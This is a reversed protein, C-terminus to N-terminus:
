VGDDDSPKEAPADADHKKPNLDKKLKDVARSVAKPLTDRRESLKPKKPKDPKTPAADSTDDQEDHQPEAQEDPVAQLKPKDAPEEDRDASTSPATSFGNRFNEVGEDIAEPLAEIAEAIRDHPTFLSFRTPKDANQYDRDTYGMDIVVRLTPEIAGLVPETLATTQLAASFDRVPQLLPLHEARILVYTDTGGEPTTVVLVAQDDDDLDVNDPGHDGHVYKMGAVANAISLPNAYAPFDAILDYELSVFTEDYPSPVAAGTSVFGPFAMGPFRSYIGGNPVFPSALFLFKLDAPAPAGPDSLLTRKYKEAVLSGQSYGVILVTRDGDIEADVADHLAPIGAEVSPDVPLLAPYQVGVFPHDNAVLQGQFKNKIRDSTTNGAGGVGVVVDNPPIAIATANPAHGFALATTIGATAGAVMVASRRQRKRHRAM